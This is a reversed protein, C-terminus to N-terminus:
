RWRESLGSHPLPLSVGVALTSFAGRIYGGVGAGAAGTLRAKVIGFLVLIVGTIICSYLQARHVVPVFFYPLLPIIGGIFYGSGITIASIYMRKNPVEELQEGLKLLFSTLGVDMSWKLQDEPVSGDSRVGRTDFEIKQLNDAVQRSLREDVGLPGLVAHVEREMDGSCSRLVRATTTGLFLSLVACLSLLIGHAHLCSFPPLPRSERHQYRYYDREAQASLFGGIGM